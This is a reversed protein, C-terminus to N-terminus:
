SKRKLVVIQLAGPHLNCREGIDAAVRIQAKLRPSVFARGVVSGELIDVLLCIDGREWGKGKLEFTAEMRCGDIPEFGSAFVKGLSALSPIFLTKGEDDLKSLVSRDCCYAGCTIGGGDAALREEESLNSIAIRGGERFADEFSTQLDNLENLLSMRGREEEQYELRPDLPNYIPAASRDELEQPLRSGTTVAKFIEHAEAQEEPSLSDVFRSHSIIFETSVASNWLVLTRFPFATRKTLLEGEVAPVGFSSYPAVLYEDEGWKGYVAVYLFGAFDYLDPHLIRIQGPEVAPEKAIPPPVPLSDIPPLDSFPLGDKAVEEDIAQQLRWEELWAQYHEHWKAPTKRFKMKEFM